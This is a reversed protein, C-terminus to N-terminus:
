GGDRLREVGDHVQFSSAQWPSVRDFASADTQFSVASTPLINNRALITNLLVAIRSPSLDEPAVPCAEAAVAESVLDMPVRRLPYQRDHTQEMIAIVTEVRVQFDAPTM